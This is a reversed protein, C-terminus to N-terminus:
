RREVHEEQRKLSPQAYTETLHRYQGRYYGLPQSKGDTASEEHGTITAQAHLLEDVYAVQGDAGMAEVQGLFIIHDGGPYEAVIRADIFALTGEIIPAGTAATYYDAHCFHQYRDESATAFCRSLYEQETTLINVAFVGSDRLSPLVSSTLDVCVLILPPDLSVSSFANVTLGAPRGNERTTVITVGTVFRGMIQRFFNKEIAM